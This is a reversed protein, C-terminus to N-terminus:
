KPCPRISIQWPYPFIEHTVASNGVREVALLGNIAYLSQMYMISYHRRIICVSAPSGSNEGYAGVGRPRLPWPGGIIQCVPGPGGINGFLLSYTFKNNNNNNNNNNTRHEDIIIIYIIHYPM